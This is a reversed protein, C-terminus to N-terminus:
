KSIFMSHYKPRTYISTGNNRQPIENLRKIVYLMQHSVSAWM